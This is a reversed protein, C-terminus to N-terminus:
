NVSKKYAEFEASQAASLKFQAKGKEKELLPDEFEMAAQKGGLGLIQDFGVVLKDAKDGSFSINDVVAVTENKNNVIKGELLESVSLGNQPIVKTSQDAEDADYSFAVANDITDENLPVLINGDTTRQVIVDFDFAALKGLGTWEGDSLVVMQATGNQDLIIDHIKAIREGNASFVPEGIMGKATTRQDIEVSSLEVDDVANNLAKEAERSAKEISEKADELGQKVQQETYHTANSESQTRETNSEALAPTAVSLALISVTALIKKNYTFM